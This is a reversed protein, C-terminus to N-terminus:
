LCLCEAIHTRSRIAETTPWSDSSHPVPELRCILSLSDPSRLRTGDGDAEEAASDLPSEPRPRELASFGGPERERQLWADVMSFIRHTATTGMRVSIQQELKM